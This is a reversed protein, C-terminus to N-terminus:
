RRILVDQEIKSVHKWKINLFDSVDSATIKRSYYSELVLRILPSGTNIMAIHHPLPFWEQRSRRLKRLEAYEQEYQKMKRRYFEVTIRDCILLRRIVVERSARYKDALEEIDNDSWETKTEKELVVEELMLYERPILIAGAVRNCFVEVKQSEPLNSEEYLDCLGYNRLMIHVFEHLMTFTRGRQSDKNNVMVVPLPIEGISFGRMESIDVDTSQFVLVGNKEIALKWWALAERNDSFKLQKDRTIQLNSRINLALNEPEDSLSVQPPPNPLEYDLDHYLELAIERRDRARRTEFQLKPSLIGAKTDAFRRFDRLPTFDKPPEPLYFVAIPRKYVRGLERLQRITPRKEGAEWSQLREQKVHVKRAAEKATLHAIKRAWILLERDVLAEVREVM